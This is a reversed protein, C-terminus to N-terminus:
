VIHSLQLLPILFLAMSSSLAIFSQRNIVFFGAAHFDLKFNNVYNMLPLLQHQEQIPIQTQITELLEKTKRLEKVM